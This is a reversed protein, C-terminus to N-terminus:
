RAPDALRDLIALAEARSVFNIWGEPREWDLGRMALVERRVEDLAAQRAQKEILSISTSADCPGSGNVWLSYALDNGEETQMPARFQPADPLSM